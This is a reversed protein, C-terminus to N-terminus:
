FPRAAEATNELAQLLEEETYHDDTSGGAFRALLQRDTVTRMASEEQEPSAGLELLEARFANQWARLAPLRLLAAIPFRPAPADAQSYRAGNVAVTGRPVVNDLSEPIMAREYFSRLDRLKDPGLRGTTEWREITKASVRM